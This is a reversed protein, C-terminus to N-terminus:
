CHMLASSVRVSAHMYAATEHLMDCACLGRCCRLNQACTCICQWHVIKEVKLLVCYCHEQSYGKMERCMLARAAYRRLAQINYIKRKLHLSRDNRV